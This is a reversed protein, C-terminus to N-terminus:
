GFKGNTTNVKPLNGIYVYMYTFSKDISNTYKGVVREVQCYCHYLEEISDQQCEFYEIDDPGAM